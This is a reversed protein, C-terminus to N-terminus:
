AAATSAKKTTTEASAPGETTTKTTSTPGSKKSNFDKKYCTGGEAGDNGTIANGNGGAHCGGNEFGAGDWTGTYHIFCVGGPNSSAHSTPNYGICNNMTDCQRKCESPTM